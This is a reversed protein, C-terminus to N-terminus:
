KKTKMMNSVHQSVTQNDIMKKKTLYFDWLSKIFSNVLNPSNEGKGNVLPIIPLAASNYWWSMALKLDFISDIFNM